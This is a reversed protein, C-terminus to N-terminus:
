RQVKVYEQFNNSMGGIYEGVDWEWSLFADQLVFGTVEDCFPYMEVGKKVRPFIWRRWWDIGDCFPYKERSKRLPSIRWLRGADDSSVFDHSKELFFDPFHRM